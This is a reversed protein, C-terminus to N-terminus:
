AAAEPKSAIEQTETLAADGDAPKPDNGVRRMAREVDAKFVYRNKPTVAFNLFLGRRRRLVLIRHKPRLTSWWHETWGDGRRKSVTEINDLAVRRLRIGFLFVKM